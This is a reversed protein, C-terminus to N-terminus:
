GFEQRIFFFSHLYYAPENSFVSFCSIHVHIQELLVCMGHAIVKSEM